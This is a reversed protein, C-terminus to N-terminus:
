ILGSYKENPYTEDWHKIDDIDIPTGETFIITIWYLEGEAVRRYLDSYNESWWPYPSEPQDGNPGTWNLHSEDGDSLYAAISKCPKCWPTGTDLVIKKGQFAFDYLDVMEENQDMAIFRPVVSGVTAENDWGPDDITEKDANYPWGGKYIVSASDVPDTGAHEEEFDTYGDGDTDVKLPDSGLAVEEGDTLGDEDTDPKNPDTGLEAEQDDTLQDADTDLENQGETNGSGCGGLALLFFVVFVSPRLGCFRWKRIYM